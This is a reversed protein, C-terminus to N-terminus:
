FEVELDFRLTHDISKANLGASFVCKLPAVVSKKLENIDIFSSTATGLRREVASLVHCILLQIADGKHRLSKSLEEALRTDDGVLLLKM